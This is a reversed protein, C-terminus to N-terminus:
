AAVLLRRLEKVVQTGDALGKLHDALDEWVIRRLENQLDATSLKRYRTREGQACEGEIAIHILLAYAMCVLHLHTVAAGISLNQYQGLGLLHKGDKFFVEISWRDDYTRIMGRPSLAPDDTVLGLIMREHNKRSFIVHARGVRNVQLWGADVYSYHVTGNAKRLRYTQRNGRHFLNYGYCGAKLKRGNKFLNRNSKLTSVFHFGKERCAKIVVPCLYYTEFLVRVHVSPPPNFQRILEAALQTTKRFTRKLAKYDEQKLYLRLGFPITYGRFQLVAVVYQHGRIKRGTVPDLLCCVGQMIQGRKHKKSDDLLLEICEGSPFLDRIQWKLSKKEPGTPPLCPLTFRHLAFGGGRRHRTFGSLCFIVGAGSFSDAVCVAPLDAV